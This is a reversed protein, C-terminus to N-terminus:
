SYGSIEDEDTEEDFNAIDECDECINFDTFTETHCIRCEMYDPKTTLIDNYRAYIIADILKSQHCMPLDPYLVNDIFMKMAWLDSITLEKFKDETSLKPKTNQDSM